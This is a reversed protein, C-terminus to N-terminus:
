EKLGKVISEKLKDWAEQLASSVFTQKNLLDNEKSVIIQKENRLGAISKSIISNELELKTIANIQEM